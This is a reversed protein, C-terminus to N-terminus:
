KKRERDMMLGLAYVGGLLLALTYVPAETSLSQLLLVANYLESGYLALGVLVLAARRVASLWGLPHQSLKWAMFLSSSLGILSLILAVLGLYAKQEV